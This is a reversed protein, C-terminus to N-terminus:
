ITEAYEDLGDRVFGVCPSCINDLIGVINAMRNRIRGVFLDLFFESTNLNRISCM